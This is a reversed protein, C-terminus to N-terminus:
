YTFNVYVHIQTGTLTGGMVPNIKAGAVYSSNSISGASSDAGSSGCTLAGSLMTTGTGTAGFTPNITTTNSGNDSTCYISAITETVGLGNRCSYNAIADDGSTLAFSTGSGGWVIECPRKSYQAALQTATVTNATMQSGTVNACTGAAASSIATLVQNTCTTGTINLDASVVPSVTVASVHSSIAAAHLLGASAPLAQFNYNGYNTCTSAVTIGLYGSAPTAPTICALSLGSTSGGATIPGGSANIGGSGSYTLTSATTIGDDAASNVIANAGSAKPLYGTTLSTSTTNGGGATVTIAPTTTGNAVTCGSVCTVDTVTGTGSGSSGQL